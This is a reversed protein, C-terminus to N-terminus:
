TRAPFNSDEDSDYTRTIEGPMTPYVKKALRGAIKREIM